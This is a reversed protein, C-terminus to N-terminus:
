FQFRIGLSWIENSVPQIGNVRWYVPIAVSPEIWLNRAPSFLAGLTFFWWTGGSDPLKSGGLRDQDRVIADFAAVFRLDQLPAYTAGVQIDFGDGYRFGISDAGGDITYAAASFLSFSENLWADYRLSFKYEVSGSGLHFNHLAPVEGKLEDGTPVSLGVMLSLNRLSLPGAEEGEGAATAWPAVLGYFFMDGIGSAAKDIGTANNHIEQGYYPIGLGAGLWPTFQHHLELAIVERHWNIDSSAPPTTNEKDGKYVKDGSVYQSGVRVTTM